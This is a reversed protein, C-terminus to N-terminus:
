LSRHEDESEVQGDQAFANGCQSTPQKDPEAQAQHEDASDFVSDVLSNDPSYDQVAQKGRGRWTQRNEDRTSSFEGSPGPSFM